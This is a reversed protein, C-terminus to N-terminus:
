QYLKPKHQNIDELIANLDSTVPKISSESVGADHLSTHALTIFKRSQASSLMSANIIYGIAQTLQAQAPDHLTVAPDALATALDGALKALNDKSPQVSSKALSSLDTTLGAKLDDTANTTSKLATLDGGLKDLSQKLEATIPPPAPVAAVVPAPLPAAVVPAPAPSGPAAAPPAANDAANQARVAQNNANQLNRARHLSIRDSQGRGTLIGASLLALAILTKM